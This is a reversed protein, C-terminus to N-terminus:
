VLTTFAASEQVVIGVGEISKQLQEIVEGIKKSQDTVKELAADAKELTSEIKNSIRYLVKAIFGTVGSKSLSDAMKGISYNWEELSDINKQLTELSEFKFSLVTLVNEVIDLAEDATYLGSSLDRIVIAAQERDSINEPM